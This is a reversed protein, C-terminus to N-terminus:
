GFIFCQLRRQWPTTETRSFAIKYRMQSKQLNSILWADFAKFGGVIQWRAFVARLVQLGAHVFRWFVGGQEGLGYAIDCPRAAHHRQCAVGADGSFPKILRQAQLEIHTQPRRLTSHASPGNTSPLPLLLRTAPRYKLDLGLAEVAEAVLSLAFPSLNVVLQYVMWRAVSIM